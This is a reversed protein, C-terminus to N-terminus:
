GKNDLGRILQIFGGVTGLILFVIALYHTGFARDLWYGLGYGAISSAPLAVALSFYRGFTAWGGDDKM